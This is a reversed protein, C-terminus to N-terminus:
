FPVDACGGVSPSSAGACAECSILPCPDACLSLDVSADLCIDGFQETISFAICGEVTLGPIPGYKIPVDVCLGDDGYGVSYDFLTFSVGNVFLEVSLTASLLSDSATSIQLGAGVGVTVSYGALSVTGLSEQFYLQDLLDAQPVDFGTPAEQRRWEDFSQIEYAKAGPVSANKYKGVYMNSDDPIDAPTLEVSDADSDAKAKPVNGALIESEALAREVETATIEGDGDGGEQAAVVSSLGAAGGAATTAASLVKRRDIDVNLDMEAIDDNDRSM